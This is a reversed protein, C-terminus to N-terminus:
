TSRGTPPWRQSRRFLGQRRGKKRSRRNQVRTVKVPYDPFKYSEGVELGNLQRDLLYDAETLYLSYDWQSRDLASQPDNDELAYDSLTDYGPGFYDRAPYETRVPDLEDYIDALGDFVRDYPVVKGYGDEQDVLYLPTGEPPEEDLRFRCGCIGCCREGDDSGKRIGTSGCGPCHEEVEGERITSVRRVPGRYVRGHEDSYPGYSVSIHLPAHISFEWRNGLFVDVSDPLEEYSMRGLIARVEARAEREDAANLRVRRGDFVAVYGAM